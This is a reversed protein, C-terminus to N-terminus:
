PWSCREMILGSVHSCGDTTMLGVFVKCRPRRGCMVLEARQGFVYAWYVNKGTEIYYIAEDISHHWERGGIAKIRRDADAEDPVHCTVQHTM